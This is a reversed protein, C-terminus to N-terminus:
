NKHHDQYASPRIAMPAMIPSPLLASISMLAKTIGGSCKPANSPHAKHKLLDPLPKTSLNPKFLITPNNGFAFKQLIAFFGAM